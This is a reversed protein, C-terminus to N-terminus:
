RGHWAEVTLTGTAKVRVRTVNGPLYALPIDEAWTVQVTAPDAGAAVAQGVAQSVAAALVEQRSVGALSVVQDVVGSIPATAAGVANAVAHHAPVLTQIGALAAQALWASGGVLIVPGDGERM